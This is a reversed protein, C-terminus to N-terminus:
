EPLGGSSSAPAAGLAAGCRKCFRADPDNALGCAVCTTVVVIKETPEVAVFQQSSAPAPAARNSASVAATTTARIAALRGKLEREILARYDDGAALESMVRLARARYREVMERYDTEGIKKMQYDLEIEKIAKLVAQKERELEREHLRAPARKGPAARVEDRTLPDVVRWLAYATLVLTLGGLGTMVLPPGLRMGLAFHAYGAAIIAGVSGV